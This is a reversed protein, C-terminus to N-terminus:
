LKFSLGKKLLNQADSSLKNHYYSGGNGNYNHNDASAMSAASFVMILSVAVKM